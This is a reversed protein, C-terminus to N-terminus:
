SYSIVCQDGTGIGGEGTKKKKKKKNNNNRDRQTVKSSRSPM